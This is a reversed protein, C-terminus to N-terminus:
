LESVLRRVLGAGGAKAAELLEEEVHQALPGEAATTIAAGVKDSVTELVEELEEAILQEARPFTAHVWSYLWPVVHMVIDRLIVYLVVAKVCWLTMELEFPQVRVYTIAPTPTPTVTHYFLDMESATSRRRCM